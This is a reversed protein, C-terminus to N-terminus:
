NSFIKSSISKLIIVSYTYLFLWCVLPHLFWAFDPKRIFGRLSDFLPRILTITYFIFLLLKIKDKRNSPDFVKYRRKAGQKLGHQNFYRIRKRVLNSLRDSTDHIIDNKVFAIKNHGRQILDYIIDIHFYNEAMTLVSNLLQRRVLFGNCGVTPVQDKFMVTYYDGSDVAEGMLQWSKQYYTARDAKGLYFAVPDNVGFLACYRNFANDTKQYSYRWTESAIITKDEILPQVMKRLWDKTTLYNDSDIWVIIENKAKKAGVFRRAEQNDPYGGNVFKAGFKKAIAASQDTSGGDAIIIEIKDKPYDQDKIRSLCEGLPKAANLTPIIVSLSPLDITQNNSQKM